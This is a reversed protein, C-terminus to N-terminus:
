EKNILLENIVIETFKRAGDDNLHSPNKFMNEEKISSSFDHLNPIKLKLKNIYDLNKCHKCFPACYYVVNINQKKCFDNIKTFYSNTKLIENPLSYNHQNSIGNLQSYGSDM